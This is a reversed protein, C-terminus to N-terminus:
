PGNRVALRRCPRQWSGEYAKCLVGRLSTFLVSTLPALRKWCCNYQTRANIFAFIYGPTTTTFWLHAKVRYDAISANLNNMLSCTLFFHRALYGHIHRYINAPPKNCFCIVRYNVIGTQFFSVPSSLQYINLLNIWSLDIFKNSFFYAISSVIPAFLLIYLYIPIVPFM